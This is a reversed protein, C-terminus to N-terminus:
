RDTVFILRFTTFPSISASVWDKASTCLVSESSFFESAPATSSPSLSPHNSLMVLEISQSLIPTSHVVCYEMPTVSDSVASFRSFQVSSFVLACKSYYNHFLLSTSISWILLKLRPWTRSIQTPSSQMELSWASYLVLCTQLHILPPLCPTHFVKAELCTLLRPPVKFFTTLLGFYLINSFSFFLLSQVSIPFSIIFWAAVWIRPYILISTFTLYPPQLLYISSFNFGTM